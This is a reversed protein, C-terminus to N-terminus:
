KFAKFLLFGGVGLLILMGTSIGGVTAPLGVSAAVSQLTSTIPAAVNTLTGLGAGPSYSLTYGGRGPFGYKSPQLTCMGATGSGALFVAKCNALSQKIASGICCSIGWSSNAGPSNPCGYYCSGKGDGQQGNTYGTVAPILAGNQCGNRGPQIQPGCIQWYQQWLQDCLNAADSGAISGANAASFLQALSQDLHQVASAVATNENTAQKARQASAALFSSALAAVGAVVAGVPGAAALPALAAPTLAGALGTNGAATNQTAQSGSLPFVTAAM